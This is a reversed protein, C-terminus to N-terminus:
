KGRLVAGPTMRAHPTGADGDGLQGNDGQGWCYAVGTTAIGCSFDLSAQLTTFRMGQPMALAAVRQSPVSPVGATGANWCYPVGSASLACVSSFGSRISVFREAGSVQVTAAQGISWLAMRQQSMMWCNAVGSTTLGCVQNVSSASATVPVAGMAAPQWVVMTPGPGYVQMDVVCYLTNVNAVGCPNFGGAQISQFQVSTTVLLPSTITRADSGIGWCYVYGVQTRGCSYGAGTTVQVFPMPANVRTPTWRDTTTGDGV